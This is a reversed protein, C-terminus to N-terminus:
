SFVQIQLITVSKILVLWSSGDWWKQQSTTTDLVTTGTEITYATTPLNTTSYRNGSSIRWKSNDDDWTYWNGTAQDINIGGDVSGTGLSAVTASVTVVGTVSGEIGDKTFVTTDDSDLLKFRYAVASSDIFVYAEGKSGLIIPNLNPTAKAADSWTTKPTTTGTEYTYLKGGVYPDGNADLYQLMPNPTVSAAGWALTTLLVLYLALVWNLRKYMM